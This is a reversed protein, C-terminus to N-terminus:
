LSINYENTKLQDTVYPSVRDKAFDYERTHTDDTLEGFTSGGGHVNRINGISNYDIVNEDDKMRHNSLNGGANIKSGLKYMVSYDHTDAINERNSHITTNRYPDRTVSGKKSDKGNGSYSFLNGQKLTSKADVNKYMRIGKSTDKAPNLTMRSTTDRETEPPAYGDRYLENHQSNISAANRFELEKSESRFGPSVYSSELNKTDLTSHQRYGGQSAHGAYLYSNEDETVNYDGNKFNERAAPKKNGSTAAWRENKYHRPITERVKAGIEGRQSVKLVAKNVPLKYSEKKNVRLDDIDKFQPRVTTEDMPQVRIEPYPLNNTKYQSPIYRETDPKFLVGSTNQKVTNPASAVEKKSKTLPEVGTFKELIFENRGPTMNQKSHGRFHPHMNNHTMKFNEGSMTQKHAKNILFSPEKFMPGSSIQEEIKSPVRKFKPLLSPTEEIPPANSCDFGCETTALNSVINTRKSNKSKEFRESALKKENEYIQRTHVSRYVNTSSPIENQSVEERVDAIKRPTKSESTLSKGLFALAGFIAVTLDM